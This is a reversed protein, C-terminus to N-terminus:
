VITAVPLRRGLNGLNTARLDIDYVPTTGPILLVSAPFSCRGSSDTSLSTFHAILAGTNADWVFVGVGTLNAYLQTTNNDIPPTTYTGTGIDFQGGFLMDAINLGGVLAAGGGGILGGFLVDEVNLNGVLNSATQTYQGAFTMDEVNLNGVLGAIVPAPAIAVSIGLFDHAPSSTLTGVTVAGSPVGAGNFAVVDSLPTTANNILVSLPSGGPVSATFSHQNIEVAVALIACNAVTTTLNSFTITTVGSQASGFVSAINIPSTTDNGSFHHVQATSNANSSTGNCSVGYNAPESGTVLKWWLDVCNNFNQPFSYGPTIRTWTGGGTPANPTSHDFTGYECILLEGVSMGAPAPANRVTVGDNPINTIRTGSNVYAAVM